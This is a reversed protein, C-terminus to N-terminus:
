RPVEQLVGGCAACPALATADRANTLFEAGCACRVTRWTAYDVPAPRPAPDPPELIWGEEIARRLGGPSRFPSPHGQAHRAALHALVAQVRDPHQHALRAAVPPGVGEAVLRNTWVCVADAERAPAPTRARHTKDQDLDTNIPHRESWGGRTESVLGGQDTPGAGRPPTVGVRGPSPPTVSVSGGTPATSLNDVPSTMPVGGPSPPTEHVSGGTPAPSLDDARSRGDARKADVCPVPGAAPPRPTEGARVTPRSASALAWQAARRANDPDEPHFLQYRNPGGAQAVKTLLGAAGLARLARIASSRSMGTDHAMRTYGPFAQARDADWRLLYVYALRALPDLPVAFLSNPVDFWHHTWRAEIPGADDAM